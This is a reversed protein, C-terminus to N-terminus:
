FDIKSGNTVVFGSLVPKPNAKTALIISPWPPITSNFELKWFVLM